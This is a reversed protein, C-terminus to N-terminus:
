NFSVLGRLNIFKANKKTHPLHLLRPENFDNREYAGQGELALIRSKEM